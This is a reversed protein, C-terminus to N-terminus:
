YVVACLPSGLKLTDYCVTFCFVHCVKLCTALFLKIRLIVLSSYFTKVSVLIIVFDQTALQMSWMACLCTLIRLLVLCLPSQKYVKEFTGVTIHLQLSSSQLHNIFDLM